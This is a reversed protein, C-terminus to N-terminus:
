LRISFKKLRADLMHEPIISKVTEAVANILRERIFDKKIVVSVERVAPPNEIMRVNNKQNENLFPLHLEPIVSYGGNKDVIKVLTEISGAEFAHNYAITNQCFNFIQTRICHGEGLVWLDKDPMNTASLPVNRNLNDEAFYAVFKEYYLPIEYFDAQELPTAAIFMDITGKRLADILTATRM